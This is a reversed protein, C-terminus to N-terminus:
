NIGPISLLKLFHFYSVLYCSEHNEAVTQHLSNYPFRDFDFKQCKPGKVRDQAPHHLKAGGEAYETKCM